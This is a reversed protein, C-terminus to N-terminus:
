KGRIFIDEKQLDAILKQILQNPPNMATKHMALGRIITYLIFQKYDATGAAPNLRDAISRICLTYTVTSDSVM